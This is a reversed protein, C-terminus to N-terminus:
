QPDDKDFSRQFHQDSLKMQTLPNKIEHAVQKAMDRWASERETRALQSVADELESVKKNYEQVLDGIEDQGTYQIPKNTKGLELTSVSTQLFRLPKTVWNSVFLAAVISLAFLVVFINIIAVLFNSIENELPNQKAFYPLNLYGLVNGKLDVYPVYASLYVMKGIHEQQVYESRHNSNLEIFAKPQMKRSLLGANFMEHRSSAIMTGSLDYMNIDTFFVLSFKHMISNVFNYNDPTIETVYELKKKVEVNVSRIKESILKNNKETYQKEIFFRTGLGFLILCTLILGIVVLQIKSKLTLRKLNKIRGIEKISIAVLLLLSFLAFLYSFSTAKELFSAIPKGLVIIIKNNVRYALHNYGNEDFIVFK